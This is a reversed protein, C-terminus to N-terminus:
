RLGSQPLHRLPAILASLRAPPTPPYLESIIFHHKRGLWYNGAVSQERVRQRQSKNAPDHARLKDNHRIPFPCQDTIRTSRTLGETRSFFSAIWTAPNTIAVRRGPQPFRALRGTAASGPEPPTPPSLESIISYHKSDVRQHQRRHGTRTERRLRCLRPLGTPPPQAM